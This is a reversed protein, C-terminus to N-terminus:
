GTPNTTPQCGTFRAPYAQWTSSGTKVLYESTTITIPGRFTPFPGHDDANKSGIVWASDAPNSVPSGNVTSPAVFRASNGREVLQHIYGDMWQRGAFTGQAMVHNLDTTISPAQGDPCTPVPGKPDFGFSDSSTAAPATATATDSPAATKTPTTGTELSASGDRNADRVLPVAVAIGAIVALSTCATGTAALRRHRAQRGAAVIRDTTDPLPPEDILLRDLAERLDTM